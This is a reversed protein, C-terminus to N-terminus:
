VSVLFNSLRCVEAAEQHANGAGDEYDMMDESSPLPEERSGMQNQERMELWVMLDEGREPHAPGSQRLLGDLLGDQEYLPGPPTGRGNRVTSSIEQSQGEGGNSVREPINM